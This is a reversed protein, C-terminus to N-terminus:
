LKEELFALEKDIDIDSKNKLIMNKLRKTEKDIDISQIHKDTIKTTTKSKQKVKALFSKIDRNTAIQNQIKNNSLSITTPNKSIQKKSDDNTNVKKTDLKTDLEVELDKAINELSYLEDKTEASLRDRDKIMEEIKIEYFKKMDNTLKSNFEKNIEIEELFDDPIYLSRVEVIEEDSIVLNRGMNYNYPDCGEEELEEMPIVSGIAM